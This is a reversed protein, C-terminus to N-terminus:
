TDYHDDKGTLSVRNILLGSNGGEIQLSAQDIPTTTNIGVQRFCCSQSM